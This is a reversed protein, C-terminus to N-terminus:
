RIPKGCSSCYYERPANGAGCHPCAVQDGTLAPAPTTAAKEMTAAASGASDHSPAGSRKGALGARIRLLDPNDPWRELAKEATRSADETRGAQLLCGILGTQYKATDPAFRCAREFIKQTDPSFNQRREFLDALYLVTERDEPALQTQRTLLELAGKGEQQGARYQAALFALIDRRKEDLRYLQAIRELGTPSTDGLQFAAEGLIRQATPNRPDKATIESAQAVADPFQRERLYADALWLVLQKRRNGSGTEALRAELLPIARAYAGAALAAEIAAEARSEKLGRFLALLPGLLKFGIFFLTLFLGWKYKEYWIRWLMAGLDPAYDPNRKQLAALPDRAKTFEGRNFAILGTYYDIDDSSSAISSLSNLHTEAEDWREMRATSRLLLPLLEARPNLPDDALESLVAYAEDAKDADLLRIGESLRARFREQRAQEETAAKRVRELSAQIEPDGKAMELAQQYSLVAAEFARKNESEEAAKLMASLKQNQAIQAQRRALAATRARHEAAARRELYGTISAIRTGIGRDEGDFEQARQLQEIAVEWNGQKEALDASNTFDRIALKKQAQDILSAIEGNDPEAGQAKGLLELARKYDGARFAARGDEALNSAVQTSKQVLQSRLQVLEDNPIRIRGAQNLYDRAAGHDQLAIFAKAAMLLAKQLNADDGAELATQNQQRLHRATDAIKQWQRAATQMGYLTVWASTNQPHAICAKELFELTRPRNGAQNQDKAFQLYIAGLAKRCDDEDPALKLAAELSAAAKDPQNLKRLSLGLYYHAEFSSPDLSVAKELSVCAERYQFLGFYDKGTKLFTDAPGASIASAIGLLAGFCVLRLPSIAGNGIRLRLPTTM